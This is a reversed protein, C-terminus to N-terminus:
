KLSKFNLENYAKQMETETFGNGNLVVLFRNYVAFTLKTEISNGAESEEIKVLRGDWKVTKTQGNEAKNNKQSRLNQIAAAVVSSGPTGAGDTVYLKLTHQKDKKYIGNAMLVSGKLVSSSIFRKTSSIGLLTEPLVEKLTEPKIYATNRLKNQIQDMNLSDDIGKQNVKISDQHQAETQTDSSKKDEQKNKNQGCSILLISSLFLPILQTNKM